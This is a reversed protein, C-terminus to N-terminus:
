DLTHVLLGSRLKPEFWTSKPPMIKGADAVAMLQEVSTPYMSFAVADGGSDVRKKLEGPGRIGGVFDIRDSKRPDDIALIPGLLRDQLVSVDMATVPDDTKVPDWSLDYWKGDLYMSVHGAQTPSPSADDTVAFVAKVKELFEDATNGNLDQVIRNYPLIMLESAPFLVALFWNYEEEGTHNPNAERRERGVRAASASRHHGDAVFLEPVAGFASVLAASDDIRWVVHRIGDASTFDYLPAQNKVESAIASITADDRYTLFVPGANANSESVHRTRDNEKQPRTHEHKKILDADYDEVHCCCVLGYQTHDGMMQSYLYLCPHDERILVCRAQLAALNEVAKAYVADSYLDTGEPLDIEPKVVHLFSDPNGEAMARAEESNLVDYPPSAVKEVKAPDPRLAKFPKIRM